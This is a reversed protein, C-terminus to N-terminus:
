ATVSLLTRFGLETVILLAPCYVILPVPPIPPVVPKLWVPVPENISSVGIREFHTVVGPANLM